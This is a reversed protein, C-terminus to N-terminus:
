SGTPTSQEREHVSRRAPVGARELDQDIISKFQLALTQLQNDKQDDAAGSDVTDAIQQRLEAIDQRASGSLHVPGGTTLVYQYAFAFSDCSTCNVNMAAAVNDPAVNTADGTVFVAQFAVAAARCGTCDHSVARAINDSTVSPAGVSAVQLGTRTVDLKDATATASVVQNPGGAPEAAAPLAAFACLVATALMTALAPRLRARTGDATSTRRQLTV